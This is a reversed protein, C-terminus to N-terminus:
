QVYWKCSDVYKKGNTKGEVVIYNEGKELPIDSWHIRCLEDRSKKSIKNSNVYLVAEKLNTYVKIDSVSSKLSDRKSTIHLMPEPNWNAKYFFFADKRVKRDYTVLGKDNIGFRDGENKVSSSFDAFNWIFKCWVFKRDHM